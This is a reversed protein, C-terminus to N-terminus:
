PSTKGVKVIATLGRSPAGYPAIRIENKGFAREMATEFDRVTLGERDGQQAFIGGKPAIRNTRQGRVVGTALKEEATWHNLVRVQERAFNRKHFERLKRGDGFDLGDDGLEGADRRVRIIRKQVVREGEEAANM